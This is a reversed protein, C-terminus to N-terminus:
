SDALRRLADGELRYITWEDMPKAGLSEYFAIAPANWDLVSWEFRGCGNEVAIRAVHQLMAKGAGRGRCPPTVYVDELYIGNRGLWTSYNFFFVAYGAPKGGMECILARAKAESSFLSRRIGEADTKVEHEAHEYAALERIFALLVAADDLTAPRIQIDPM